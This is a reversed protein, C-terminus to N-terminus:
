ARRFLAWGPLRGSPLLKRFFRRGSSGTSRTRNKVPCCHHEKMLEWVAREAKRLMRARLCMRKVLPWLLDGFIAYCYAAPFLFPLVLVFLLRKGPRLTLFEPQTFIYVSAFALILPAFIFAVTVLTYEQKTPKDYENPQSLKVWRQFRKLPTEVKLVPFPIYRGEM